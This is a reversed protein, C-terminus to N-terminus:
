ACVCCVGLHLQATNEMNYEELYNTMLVTLKEFNGGVEAYTRRDRPAGMQGYDGTFVCCHRVPM